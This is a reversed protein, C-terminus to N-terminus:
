CLPTHRAATREMEDRIVQLFKKGNKQDPELYNGEAWENWSKVFVIKHESPQTEIYRLAQRLHIKLLEPTYDHLIVGKTGCRPSNDWGTIVCPYSQIGSPTSELFYPIADRYRYVHLPFGRLRRYEKIISQLLYTLSSTPKRLMKQIIKTQNCIVVADYGYEHPYWIQESQLVAILYLGKLGTKQALNRWLDTVRKSDLLNKPKYVLFLPKDEVKIYRPDSFAELLTYFHNEHDQMGPYTQEILVNNPSGHWIGSWTDNAWCLCFPFDPKGSRLVENFPRELLCKGAFWYHFYCFGNIGFAKALEAQAIRTEPVRLDYFGLDAPIRPQYHGPFLPKARCVNAWETFGKGWWEDNQPIPHFQPLYFAILRPRFEPKLLDKSCVTQSYSLNKKNM